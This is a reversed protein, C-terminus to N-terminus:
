NSAMRPVFHSLNLTILRPRRRFYKAKMQGQLHTTPPKESVEHIKGGGFAKAEAGANDVVNNGQM